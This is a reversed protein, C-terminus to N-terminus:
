SVSKTVYKSIKWIQVAADDAAEANDAKQWDDNKSQSDRRTVRAEVKLWGFGGVVVVVYKICSTM